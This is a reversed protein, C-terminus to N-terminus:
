SISTELKGIKTQPDTLPSYQLMVQILFWEIPVHPLLHFIKIKANKFKYNVSSQNLFHLNHCGSLYYYILNKVFRKVYDQLLTMMMM